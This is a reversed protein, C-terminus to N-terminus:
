MSETFLDNCYTLFFLTRSKSKVSEHSDKRGCDHLSHDTQGNKLVLVYCNLNVFEKQTFAPRSAKRSGFM